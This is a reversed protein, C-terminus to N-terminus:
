HDAVAENGNTGVVFGPPPIPLPPTEPHLVGHGGSVEKRPTLDRLNVRRKESARPADAMSIMGSLHADARARFGRAHTGFAAVYGFRFAVARRICKANRFSGRM